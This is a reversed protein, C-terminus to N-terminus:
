LCFVAYSIRMLSQLESTHEESREFFGARLIINTGGSQAGIAGLDLRIRLKSSASVPTISINYEPLGVGDTISPVTTGTPFSWTATVSRYTNSRVSVYSKIAVSSSGFYSLSNWPTVGDGVKFRNTDRECCIEGDLLSDNHSIWTAALAIRLRFRYPIFNAL